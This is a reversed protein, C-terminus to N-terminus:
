FRTIDARKYLGKLFLLVQRSAKKDTINVKINKLHDESTILSKDCTVLLKFQGNDQYVDSVQGKDTDVLMSKTKNSLPKTMNTIKRSDAFELFPKKDLQVKDCGSLQPRLKQMKKYDALTNNKSSFVWATFKFDNINAISVVNDIESTSVDIDSFIMSFINSKTLEAKIHEQYSDFSLDQQQIRTKMEGRLMNNRKELTHIASDVQKESIEIEMSAAHQNILKEEILKDLIKNAFEQEQKSNNFKINELTSLLNKREQLEYGTIPEDNVIAVIEDSAFVMNTIFISLTIVLQLTKKM